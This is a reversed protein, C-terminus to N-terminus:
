QEIPARKKGFLNVPDAAWQRCQDHVAIDGWAQRIPRGEISKFLENVPEAQGAFCLYAAFHQVNWQVPYRAIVDQAGKAFRKWDVKLVPVSQIGFLGQIAAWYVRTFRHM